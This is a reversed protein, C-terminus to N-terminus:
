ISQNNLTTIQCPFLFITLKITDNNIIDGEITISGNNTTIKLNPAIHPKDVFYNIVYMNETIESAYKTMSTGTYTIEDIVLMKPMELAAASRIASIAETTATDIASTTNTEATDIASISETKAIDIDAVKSETASNIEAISNFTQNRINDLSDMSFSNLTVYNGDSDKVNIPATNLVISM